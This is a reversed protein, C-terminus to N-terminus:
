RAYMPAETLYQGALTVVLTGIPEETDPNPSTNEIRRYFSVTGVQSPHILLCIPERLGFERWVNHEDLYRNQPTPPLDIHLEAFNAYFYNLLLRADLFRDESGMVVSLAKGAPRDVMAALCEGADSTTGTKVGITGSYTNLLENTSELKRGAVVAESRRVIDAFIPNRLAYLSIIAVDYTTTYSGEQDLGHPNAFHTDVLGWSTLLENMWAVFTKVDGALSRAIAMAAANDSRVLLIFLLDRLTFRDGSQLREVSYVRLDEDRVMIMQDQRGRQLAVIATVMKVFSAPSRRERENRAYLIEGTTTNALVVSAATVGPVAVSRMALVQHLALGQRPYDSDTLVPPGFAMCPSSLIILLLWSMRRSSM